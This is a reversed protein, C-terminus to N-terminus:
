LTRTPRFDRRVLAVLETWNSIEYDPARSGRIGSYKGERRSLVTAMGIRAPPAVDKEPHDGVYMCAKPDWGCDRCARSYLKVNPKDIGIQESIFIARGDLFRTLDLRVLKEAQKIELGSTIIGLSLEEKCLEQLGEVVDPYPKLLDDKTHHYAVVGAAILIAPNVKAFYQRPLRKLLQNYHMHYNSSFEAIIELLEQYVEEEEAELGAAIMARVANRRAQAAFDTTSYLTDDIDFFIAQLPRRADAM